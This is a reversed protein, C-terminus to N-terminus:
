AKKAKLWKALDKFLEFKSLDLVRIKVGKIQEDELELMSKYEPMLCYGIIEFHFIGKLYDKKAGSSEFPYFFFLVGDSWYLPMISNPRVARLMLEEKKDYRYVEHIVLKKVPVHEIEVM